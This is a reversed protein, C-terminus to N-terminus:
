RATRMWSSRDASSAPLYAQYAVVFFVSLTGVAFGVVYLQTMSLLGLVFAVPITLLLLARGLDAVILIRRRPLRDVWVGAFLSFLATPAAAAAALVGMEVPGAHLTIVATLPLALLTIQDGFDSITQGIWFKLFESDRWLSTVGRLTTRRHSQFSVQAIPLLHSNRQTHNQHPQM